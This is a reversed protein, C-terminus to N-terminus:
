STLNSLIFVSVGSYPCEHMLDGFNEKLREVIHKLLFNDSSSKLLECAEVKPSRIVERFQSGEKFFLSGWLKLFHQNKVWWFVSYKRVYFKNLPKRLVGYFSITSVKRSYFKVTCSVNPYAVIKTFENSLFCEFKTIFVLNQPSSNLNQSNISFLLSLFIILFIRMTTTPLNSIHSNFLCLNIFLFKFIIIIPNIM